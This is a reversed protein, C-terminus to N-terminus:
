HMRWMGPALSSLMAVKCGCAHLALLHTCRAAHPTHCVRPTLLAGKPLTSDRESSEWRSSSRGEGGAGAEVEAGATCRQHQRRSSPLLVTAKQRYDKSSRFEGRVEAEAEAEAELTKCYSRLVSQPPPKLPRLRQM